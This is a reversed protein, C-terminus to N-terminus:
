VKDEKPGEKNCQPKKKQIPVGTKTCGTSCPVFDKAKPNESGAAAVVPSSEGVEYNQFEQGVGYNYAEEQEVGSYAEQGVPSEHFLFSTTTDRSGTPFFVLMIVGTISAISLFLAIM